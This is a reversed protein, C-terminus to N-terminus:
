GDSRRVTVVPETAVDLPPPPPPPPDTPDTPQPQPAGPTPDISAVPHAGRLQVILGQLVNYCSGHFEFSDPQIRTGDPEITQVVMRVRRAQPAIELVCYDCFLKTSM